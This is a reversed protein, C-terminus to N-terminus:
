KRYRAEALACVENYVQDRMAARAPFLVDHYCICLCPYFKSDPVCFEHRGWHRVHSACRLKDPQYVLAETVTDCLRTLDARSLERCTDFDWVHSGDDSVSLRKLLQRYYKM